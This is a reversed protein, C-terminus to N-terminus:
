SIYIGQSRAVGLASSQIAIRSLSEDFTRSEAEDVDFEEDDPAAEAFPISQLIIVVTCPM